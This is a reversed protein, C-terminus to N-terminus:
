DVPLPDNVKQMKSGSGDRWGERNDNGALEGDDLWSSNQHSDRTNAAIM